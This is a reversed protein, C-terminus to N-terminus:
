TLWRYKYKQEKPWQGSSTVVPRGTFWFSKRAAWSGSWMGASAACVQRDLERKMKGESKFLVGLYKFEKVQPLLEGGVRLTWRQGAPFWPEPEITYFNPNEIHGQLRETPQARRLEMVNIQTERCDQFLSHYAAVIFLVPGWPQEQHICTVDGCLEEALIFRGHLSCAAHTPHITMTLTFFLSMFSLSWFRGWLNMHQEQSEEVNKKHGLRSTSIVVHLQVMADDRWFSFSSCRALFCQLGRPVNVITKWKVTECKTSQGDVRINETQLNLEMIIVDFLKNM